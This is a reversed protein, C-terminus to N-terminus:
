NDWYQSQARSIADQLDYSSLGRTKTVVTMGWNIFEIACEYTVQDGRLFVWFERGPVLYDALLHPQKLIDGQVFTPYYIHLIDCAAPEIIFKSSPQYQKLDDLWPLAQWVPLNFADFGLGCAGLDLASVWEKGMIKRHIYKETDLDELVNDDWKDAVQDSRGWWFMLDINNNSILQWDQATNIMPDTWQTMIQPPFNNVINNKYVGAATWVMVRQYGYSKMYNLLNVVESTWGTLDPRSYTMGRPNDMSLRLCDGIQLGFVPQLDQQYKVNGYEQQFYEKYPKITHIWDDRDTYAVSVNYTREQYGAIDGDLRFEVYWADGLRSGVAQRCVKTRISHEYSMIPYELSFGVAFRSDRIIIVPAYLAEPYTDVRSSIGNRDSDDLEIFETVYNHQLFEIKDELLNGYIRLTPLPQSTSTPNSIHYSLQYGSERYEMETEVACETETTDYLLEKTAFRLVGYQAHVVQFYNNEDYSIIVPFPQPPDFQRLWVKGNMNDNEYSLTNYNTSSNNGVSPVSLGLSNVLEIPQDSVSGSAYVNQIATSNYILSILIIVVFVYKGM